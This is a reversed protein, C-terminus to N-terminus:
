HRLRRLSHSGGRSFESRTGAILIGDLCGMNFPQDTNPRVPKEAVRTGLSPTDRYREAPIDLLLFSVLGLSTDGCTVQLNWTGEQM